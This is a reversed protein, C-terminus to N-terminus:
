ITNEGGEFPKEIIQGDAGEDLVTVKQEATQLMTYLATSLRTGEEFLSMSEELPVEGQELTKVIEELRTMAQEFTQKKKGAM